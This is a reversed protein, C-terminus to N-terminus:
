LQTSYVPFVVAISMTRETFVQRQPEAVYSEDIGGSIQIALM